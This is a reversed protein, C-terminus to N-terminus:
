YKGDKSKTSLKTILLEALFEHDVNSNKAMVEIGDVCLMGKKFRNMGYAQASQLNRELIPGRMYPFHQTVDASSGNNALISCVQFGTQIQSRIQRVLSLFATGDALLGKSIRMATAADSRFIAEGLQWANEVNVTTCIAGVDNLTINQREGIYCYLKELEQTLLAHDTGVQKLIVQVAQSDIKRGALAVKSVLWERTSKEKEWPKEEAIDIIIGAKEAKKYFNTAHNIAAASIILCVAPNPKTYYEELSAMAPKSLKDAQNILVVRQDAFLALTNLENMLPDAQLNDGELIKLSMDANQKGRLLAKLLRDVCEKRDFSEKALVMYLNSYQEQTASELHKELSRLNTFKM